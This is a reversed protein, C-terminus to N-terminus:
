SRNVDDLSALDRAAAHARSRTVSFVLHPLGHFETEHEPLMGLKRAVGRSPVNIPRILSILRDRGLVDWAYSRVGLAAETALGRRWYPRHILYGIESEHAGDVLQRMLGVQGVSRGSEKEIAIWLAYGDARYRELQKDIWVQSEERTYQKPYFRMVEPDALMESVFDLDGSGM